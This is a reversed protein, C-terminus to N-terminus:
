KFTIALYHISLSILSPKWQFCCMHSMQHKFKTAINSLMYKQTLWVPFSIMM